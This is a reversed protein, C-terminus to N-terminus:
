LLIIKNKNEVIQICIYMFTLLVSVTNNRIFGFNTMELPKSTTNMVNDYIQINVKVIGSPYM